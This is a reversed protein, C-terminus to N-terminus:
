LMKALVICCIPTVTSAAVPGLPPESSACRKLFREVNRVKHHVAPTLRRQTELGPGRSSLRSSSSSGPSSWRATWTSTTESFTSSTSNARASPYLDLERGCAECRRPQFGGLESSNPEFDEQCPMARFAHAVRISLDGYSHLECCSQSSTRSMNELFDLMKVKAPRTVTRPRIHPRQQHPPQRQAAASKRVLEVSDWFPAKHCRPVEEGCGGLLMSDGVWSLMEDYLDKIDPRTEPLTAFLRCVASQCQLTLKTPAPWELAPLEGSLHRKILQRSDLTGYPVTASAAFCVLLGFSNEDASPLPSVDAGGLPKMNGTVQQSPSLDLLWANVVFNGAKLSWSQSREVTVNSPKLDGHIICPTSSHLCVLTQCMGFLCQLRFTNGHLVPGLSTIFKSLIVGTSMELVLALDGSTHVCAGHWVVINPHRLTRLIRLESGINKVSEKSGTLKLFKIAVPSGHFRGSAVIGFAGAGLVRQSLELESACILWKEKRGLDILDKLVSEFAVGSSAVSSDPAPKPITDSSLITLCEQLQAGKTTESLLTTFLRRQPRETERKGSSSVGVLVLLCISNLTAVRLSVTGFGFVTVACMVFCAVDSPATVSWRLPMLVNATVVVVTIPMVVSTDSASCNENERLVIGHFRAIDCQNSIALALLLLILSVVAIIERTVAHILRGFTSLVVLAICSCMNCGWAAFFHTNLLVMDPDAEEWPKYAVVHHVLVTVNFCLSLLGIWFVNRLVQESRHAVYGAECSKDGFALSFPHLSM